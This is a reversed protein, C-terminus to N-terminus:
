QAVPGVCSLGQSVTVLREDPGGGQELHIIIADDPLLGPFKDAWEVVSVGDGYFYEEYGLQEMDGPDDLRYVDFHYLPLRGGRYENILTFTPSTIGDSVGLGLALGRTLTTKGSGLDGILGIVAGSSLEAGLSKGYEILETETLGERAANKEM